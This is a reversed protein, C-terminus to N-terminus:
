NDLADTKPAIVPWLNLAHNSEAQLSRAIADIASLRRRQEVRKLPGNIRVVYCIQM